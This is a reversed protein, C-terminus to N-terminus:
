MTRTDICGSMIVFLEILDKRCEVELGLSGQDKLGLALSITTTFRLVFCRVDGLM